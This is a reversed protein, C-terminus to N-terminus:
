ASALKEQVMSLIGSDDLGASRAARIFDEAMAEIEAYGGQRPAIDSETVYTGRGRRTNIYGERELDM